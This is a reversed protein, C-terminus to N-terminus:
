SPSTGAGGCHGALGRRHARTGSGQGPQMLCLRPLRPLQLPGTALLLGPRSHLPQPHSSAEAGQTRPGTDGRAGRSHPQTRTLAQAQGDKLVRPHVPRLGPPNTHTVELLPGADTTLDLVSTVLLPLQGM